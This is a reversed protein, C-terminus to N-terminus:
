SGSKPRHVLAVLKRRLRRQLDQIDGVAVKLLRAQAQPKTVDLCFCNFLKLLLREQSLLLRIGAKFQEFRAADEKEILRELPTPEPAPALEVVSITEGDDTVFPLLDAENRMLKNEMRHHLRNIIRRAGRRLHAELQQPEIVLGTEQQETFFEAVAQAAISSTDYGGPLVGGIADRWCYGYIEIKAFWETQKLLLQWDVDSLSNQLGASRLCGILRSRVASLTQTQETSGNQGRPSELEHACPQASSAQQERDFGAANDETKM